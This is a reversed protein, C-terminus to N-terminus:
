EAHAWELIRAHSLDTRLIVAKAGTDALLNKLRVELYATLLGLPVKGEIKLENRM